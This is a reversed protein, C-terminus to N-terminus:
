ARVKAGPMMRRLVEDRRGFHHWLAASVHLVVLALALYALLVHVTAFEFRLPTKQLRPLDALFAINPWPFLGFYLTPLGTPSASVLAWGALPIAIILVYLLAHSAHALFRQGAGMGAPLPPVPNVLRWCLRLVSLVLVTLGLSKHTQVLAFRIPDDHAEVNAFYFGLAINALVLAAILWHFTEAVAGYRVANNRLPM